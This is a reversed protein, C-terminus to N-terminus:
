RPEQHGARRHHDRAYDRMFLLLERGYRSRFSKPYVAIVRAYCALILRSM